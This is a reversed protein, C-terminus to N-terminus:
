KKLCYFKISQILSNDHKNHIRNKDIMTCSYIFNMKNRVKKAKATKYKM